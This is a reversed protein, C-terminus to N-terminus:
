RGWQLREALVTPLGANIIKDIAIDVPYEVRIWKGNDKESDYIYYCSRPDNDRPQGISGVNIIRRLTSPEEFEVPMHSHGIFCIKESFRDFQLEAEWYSLIYGWMEPQSPTSHVFLLDNESYLYDLQRLFEKSENTLNESTWKTADQAYINFYETSTLGIAAHDHNGALIIDAEARVREVCYNPDAGYGVIDGLCIIKDIERRDITDLVADLAERNAHIDSILAYLM